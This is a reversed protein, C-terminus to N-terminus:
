DESDEAEREAAERQRDAAEEEAERQEEAAREEAERREEAAKEAAERRKEESERAREEQKKAAEREAEEQHRVAEEQHDEIDEEHDELKQKNSEREDELNRLTAEFSNIQQKLEEAKATDGNKLAAEYEQKLRERNMEIAEQRSEFLDDIKSEHAEFEDDVEKAHNPDDDGILEAIVAKHETFNNLANAIGAADIDEEAFLAELERLREEALSRHMSEKLGDTIAFPLRVNEATRDISYLVDGPKSSDSAVVVGAGGTFLVMGGILLIHAIGSENNTM